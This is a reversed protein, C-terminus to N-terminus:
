HAAAAKSEIWAKLDAERWRVSAAGLKIPRPFEEADMWRYITSHSLGTLNKVEALKLLRGSEAAIPNQHVTM